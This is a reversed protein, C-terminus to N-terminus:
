ELNHLTRIWGSFQEKLTRKHEILAIEACRMGSYRGVEVVQSKDGM